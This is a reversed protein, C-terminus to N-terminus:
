IIGLRESMGDVRLWVEQIEPKSSDNIKAPPPTDDKPLNAGCGALLMALGCLALSVRFQKIM